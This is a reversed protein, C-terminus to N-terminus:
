STYADSTNGEPPDAKIAEPPLWSKPVYGEKKLFYLLSEPYSKFSIELGPPCASQQIKCGSPFDWDTGADYAVLMKNWAESLKGIRAAAAVYAPCAGNRQDSSEGFQCVQGAEDAFDLFIRKFAPNRSVDVVRGHVVNLIRPPAYSSAYSAFAYLFADDRIIFDAVGDASVDKPFEIQDGDWTGLEIKKLTGASFGALTVVNCCHAGGTFSEIMIVPVAGRLNQVASIRHSRGSTGPQGEIRLSQGRASIEIIPTTIEGSKKKTINLVYPGVQRQVLDPQDDAVWEFPTGLAIPEFSTTPEVTAGIGVRSLPVRSEPSHVSAKIDRFVEFSLGAFALVAVVSIAIMSSSFRSNPAPEVADQFEYSCYRCVKAQSRVKEACRPCSKRAM